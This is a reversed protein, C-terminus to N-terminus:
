AQRGAVFRAAVYALVLVVLAAIALPITRGTLGDILVSGLNATLVEFREDTVEVAFRSEISPALLWTLAVGLLLGFAIATLRVTWSDAFVLIIGAAVIVTALAIWGIRKTSAVEDSLDRVDEAEIVTYVTFLDDPLQEALGPSFVAVSSLILEQYAALDITVPEGEGLVASAHVQRSLDELADEFPPSAVFSALLANLPAEIGEAQPFREIIEETLISAIAEYSGDLTFSEMAAEVFVTEDEISNAWLGLTVGHLAAGLVITSLIIIARKM